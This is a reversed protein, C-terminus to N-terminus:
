KQTYDKKLIPKPKATEFNFSSSIGSSFPGASSTEESRKTLGAFLNKIEM